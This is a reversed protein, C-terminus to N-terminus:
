NGIISIFGMQMVSTVSCITVGYIDSYSMVTWIGNTVFNVYHTAGILDTMLTVKVVIYVLNRDHIVDENLQSYRSFM